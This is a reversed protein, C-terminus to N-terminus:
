GALAPHSTMTKHRARGDIAVGTNANLILPKTTKFQQIAKSRADLLPKWRNLEFGDNSSSVEIALSVFKGTVGSTFPSSSLPFSRGGRMQQNESQKRRLWKDANTVGEASGSTVMLDGEAILRILVFLPHYDPSRFEWRGDFNLRELTEWIAYWLDAERHILQNIEIGRPRKWREINKGVLRAAFNQAVQGLFYLHPYPEMEYTHQTRQVWM